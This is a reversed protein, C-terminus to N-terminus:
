YIVKNNVKTQITWSVDKAFFDHDIKLLLDHSNPMCMFTKAAPREIGTQTLYLTPLGHSKEKM